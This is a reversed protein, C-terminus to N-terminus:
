KLGAASSKYKQLNVSKPIWRGKNYKWVSTAKAIVDFTKNVSDHLTIYNEEVIECVGDKDVDKPTVSSCLNSTCELGDNNYKQAQFKGNKYYGLKDYKSKKNSIDIVYNKSSYVNLLKVKYNDSFKGDWIIMSPNEKTMFEVPIFENEYIGEKKVYRSIGARVVGNITSYECLIENKKDGNIDGVFLKPSYCKSETSSEIGTIAQVIKKTKGDLVYVEPISFAISDSSPKKDVVLLVNDKIKDGTVDIKKFDLIYANRTCSNDKLVIKSNRKYSPEAFTPCFNADLLFLSAGLLAISKKFKM